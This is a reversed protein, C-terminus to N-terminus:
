HIDQGVKQGVEREVQAIERGVAHLPRHKALETAFAAIIGVSSLIYFITFLQSLENTPHLDGYGVTALTVVCFYLAQVPTWHEIAVYSITGVALTTGAAVLLIRTEPERAMSRIGSFM